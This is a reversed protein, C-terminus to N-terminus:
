SYTSAYQVVYLGTYLSHERSIVFCDKFSMHDKSVPQHLVPKMLFCLLQDRYVPPRELCTTALAPKFTTLISQDELGNGTGRPYKFALYTNM